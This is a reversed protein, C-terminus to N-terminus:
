SPQGGAAAMVQHVRGNSVAESRASPRTSGARTIPQADAVSTGGFKLVLM